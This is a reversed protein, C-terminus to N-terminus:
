GMRGGMNPMNFGSRANFAPLKAHGSTNKNEKRGSAKKKEARMKQVLEQQVNVGRHVANRFDFEVANEGVSTGKVTYYIGPTFEGHAYTRILNKLPEVLEPSYFCKKGIIIQWSQGRCM